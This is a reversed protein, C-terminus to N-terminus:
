TKSLWDHLFKPPDRRKIPVLLRPKWPPTDLAKDFDKPGSKIVGDWPTWTPVDSEPEKKPETEPKKPVKDTVDREESWDLYYM